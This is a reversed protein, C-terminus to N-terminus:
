PKPARQSKPAPKGPGVKGEGEGGESKSAERLIRRIAKLDDTTSAVLFATVLTKCPTEEQLQHLAQEYAKRFGGQSSSTEGLRQIKAITAVVEMDFHTLQSRDIGEGFTSQGGLAVQVLGALIRDQKNNENCVYRNIESQVKSRLVREHQLRQQTKAIAETNEAQTDQRVEIRYAGWTVVLLLFLQLAIVSFTVNRRAQWAIAVGGLGIVLPTVWPMSEIFAARLM